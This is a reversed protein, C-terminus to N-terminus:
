KSDYEMTFRLFGKCGPCHVLWQEKSWQSISWKDIEIRGHKECVFEPAGREAVVEGITKGM